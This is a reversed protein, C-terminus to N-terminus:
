HMVVQDPEYAALDFEIRWDRFETILMQFLSARELPDVQQVMELMLERLEDM